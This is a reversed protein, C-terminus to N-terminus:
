DNIVLLPRAHDLLAYQRLTSERNELVQQPSSQRVYVVALKERHAGHIKSSIVAPIATAEQSRPPPPSALSPQEASNM